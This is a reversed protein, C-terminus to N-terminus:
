AFERKMLESQIIRYLLQYCLCSTSVDLINKIIRWSPIEEKMASTCRRCLEDISMSPNCDRCYDRFYCTVKFDWSIRPDKVTSDPDVTSKTFEYINNQVFSTNLAFRCILKNKRGGKHM